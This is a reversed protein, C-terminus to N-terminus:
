WRLLSDSISKVKDSPLSKLYSETVSGNSHGMAESIFSVPTGNLKLMTAFSHRALNFCLSVDFKLKKGIKNLVRNHLRQFHARRKEKEIVGLNHNIIPFVFDDPKGDKIGIKDLIDLVEASVYVKIEKGSVKNTRKTKERVFSLADGKINKWKLYVADKMNMGNCLYCFFFLNKARRERL